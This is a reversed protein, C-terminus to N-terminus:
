GLEYIRKSHHRTTILNNDGFGAMGSAGVYGMNKMQTLALRFGVAKMVPDDFCEVLVDVQKFLVPINQEDCKLNHLVLQLYPNMRRINDATADM